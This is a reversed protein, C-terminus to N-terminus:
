LPPETITAVPAMGDRKLAEALVSRTVEAARGAGSGSHEVVCGVAFRPKDFPAYAVFISHDRLKWPLEANKRVGSRRESASIGRVQATGTKAAMKVGDLGLDSKAYATGGPENVVSWMAQRVFELNNSGITMPPPTELTQGAILNPSVALSGNAIRSTMVALQLPTALVFGQGISANLTDGMRWGSGLKGQKWAPDPVIGSKEGAIGINYTQGLGLQRAIEAIREIGIVQAIEYFYSDCSHKLAEAMNQPGHGRRKWCHFNRNGLRLKGVCVVKRFPDILKSELAALMVAMKFTSAPSYGGSIVKNYQPRKEDNNLRNMDDQTLGSVFLNGDYSPMSLLTRLEGTMVDMVAIGGSDEGFQEASFRQLPADITLWVDKGAKADDKPDPWARVIRGVANVEVKLQGAEGRLSQDAAQEVGTKGIKFTPQLLLPDEDKDIDASNARGVYGLTHTFIGQNPYSRAQGVELVVGPLNHARINLASFVPWDLNGKLLVPIFKATTRVDNKIREITRDDLKIVDQIKLLTADLDPVREPIIVARYDQRNVALGEGYRDLIRGREPVVINYNFRNNESLTLYDEAKVVQLYYLRSALVGFVGVGGAGLM